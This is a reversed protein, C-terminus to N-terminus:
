AKLSRKSMANKGDVYGVGWTESDGSFGARNKYNKRATFQENFKDQVDGPVVIALAKCQAELDSKIGAVFGSAYDTFFQSWGATKPEIGKSIALHRAKVRMVHVAFKFSEMAAQATEKRGFFNIKRNVIICKVGFSNAIVVALANYRAHARVDCGELLYEIEHDKGELMTINYKAMLKQAKLLAAKAEEESPNNGALNFLKQIKEHIKDLDVPKDDEVLDHINHGCHPCVDGVFSGGCKACVHDPTVEMKYWRKATSRAAEKIEGTETNKLYYVGTNEDFSEQVFKEQTRKNIFIIM